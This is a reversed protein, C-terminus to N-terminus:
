ISLRCHLDRQEVSEQRLLRQDSGPSRFFRIILSFSQSDAADYNSCNVRDVNLTERTRYVAIIIAL